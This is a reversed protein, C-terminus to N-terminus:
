QRKHNEIMFRQTSSQIFGILQYIHSEKWKTAVVISENIELLSELFWSSRFFGRIKNTIDFLM